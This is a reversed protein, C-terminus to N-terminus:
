ESSTRHASANAEDADGGTGRLLDLPTKALRIDTTM